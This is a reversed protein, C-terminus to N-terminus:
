LKPTRWIGTKIKECNKCKIDIRFYSKTGENRLFTVNPNNYDYKHLNLKCLIKQVM